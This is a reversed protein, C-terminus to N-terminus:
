IYVGGKFRDYRKERQLNRRDVDKSLKEGDMYIDVDKMLLSKLLEIQEQQTEILRTMMSDDQNNRYDPLQSTQKSKGKMKEAVYAILKMAQSPENLPIVVEPNNGEGLRFLGESEILGGFQHGKLISLPNKYNRNQLFPTKPDELQWHVHPGTTFAGSNGSKGVSEGVGVKGTKVSSMHLFYQSAKGTDLRAVNGGGHDSQKTVRGATPATINVGVPTGYDIGYHRGGNFNYGPIGGGPAYPTTMPYKMWHQKKGVGAESFKGKLFDFLAEKMKNWGGKAFQLMFKTIGTFGGFVANVISDFVKKPADLFDVAKEAINKIGGGIFSGAKKVGGIAKGFLGGQGTTGRSFAPLYSLMEETLKNNFIKTGKPAFIMQDNDYLGFKGNPYEVLERTGKGNGPGKDGVLALTDRAIKDNRVHGGPGRGTTGRSFSPVDWKSISAKVGIKGLVNNMGGIVGNVVDGLKSAMSNGLSTIGSVVKNKGAVIGDRMKGPMQKAGDVIKNIQELARDKAQSMMNKVADRFQGLKTRATNVMDTFRQNTSSWMNKLANVVADKAQNVLNRVTSRFNSMKERASNVMNTFKQVTNTWMNQLANVFEDKAQVIRTGIVNKITNITVSIFDKVRSFISSATEKIINWFRSWDGDIIASVASIVGRIIDMATGIALKIANWVVIVTTKIIPWFTEWMGQIIPLVTQFINVIVDMAIAMVDKVVTIGDKIFNVISDIINAGDADWWVKFDEFIGKVFTSIEEFVATIVKKIKYILFQIKLVFNGLFSIQEPTFGVSELISRGSTWDGKFMDIVGTIGGKIKDFVDMIFDSVQTLKDVTSDSLGISKLLETGKDGEDTFLGVIGDKFKVLWDIISKVKEIVGDIMNRFTESKKYAITFAAGIGVIAAVAIGIPSILFGFAATLGKVAVGFVRTVAGLKPFVTAFAESGHKVRSIGTFLNDLGTFASSTVTLISGIASIMKGFVLIFPGAAVAGLAFKGILKQTSTDLGTFWQIASKVKDITNSVAEALTKGIKEALAVAEDSKMVDVLSSLSDKIVDFTESLAAEGLIATYSKLYSIQGSWTEAMLDATGGVRDAMVEQFQEASVEGDSVAKRFEEMTLGMSKAMKSTFGPLRNEIMDLETGMLKGTGQVRNFIQSMEEIPAGSAAASDGVLKIYKQLDKGESVGAALAGTAIATNEALTALGTKSAEKVDKMIRESDKADGTFGQLQASATDMASLRKWGLGGAIGGLALTAGVAPKTIKNTLSSGVSQIQSGVDKFSQGISSMQNGVDKFSQGLKGWGSEAIRQQRQFEEFEKNVKGLQHELYNINDAQKSIETALKEAQASGEKGESKLKDYEKVLDNLNKKQSDLTGNLDKIAQKYSETSKENVKFNNMNTRLEQNFMRFSRRISALSRNVGTDNLDLDISLGRIREAM